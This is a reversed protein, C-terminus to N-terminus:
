HVSTLFALFGQVNEIGKLGLIEGLDGHSRAVFSLFSFTSRIIQARFRVIKCTFKQVIKMLM